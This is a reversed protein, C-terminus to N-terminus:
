QQRNPVALSKVGRCVFSIYNEDVPKQPDLRLEHYSSIINQAQKLDHGEAVPLWEARNNVKSLFGSKGETDKELYHLGNSYSKFLTENVDVKIDKEQNM